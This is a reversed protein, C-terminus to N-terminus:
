GRDDARQYSAPMPLDFSACLEAMDRRDHERPAYHSHFALQLEPTGCRVERGGIVGAADLSGPPYEFVEGDLGTQRGAGDEGWAIPHLDVRGTSAALEVRAPRQDVMVAYGIVTLAQIATDVDARDIGLDVDGHLRTERRLLADIGWGGTIGARVGAVGLTELVELVAAAVMTM